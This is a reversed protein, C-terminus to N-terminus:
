PRVWQKLVWGSRALMPGELVRVEYLDGSENIILVRTGGDVLFAGGALVIKAMGMRDNVRQAHAVQDFIEKRIAAIVSQGGQADIRGTQGEKMAPPPPPGSSNPQSGSKSLLIFAAVVVLTSLLCGLTTRQQRQKDQAVKKRRAQLELAERAEVRAKEEQYIREREEPTLDM